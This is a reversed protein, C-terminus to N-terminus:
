QKASGSSLLERLSPERTQVTPVCHGGQLIDKRALLDANTGMVPARPAQRATPARYICLPYLTAGHHGSTVAKHLFKTFREHKKRSDRSLPLDRASGPGLASPRVEMHNCNARQPAMVRPSLALKGRRWM